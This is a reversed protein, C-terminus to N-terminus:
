KGVGAVTSLASSVVTRMTATLTASRTMEKVLQIENALRTRDWMETGTKEAMELASKTFERNTIVISRQCSYVATATYAEQVANTGVKLGEGYLKAQIVTRTGYRDTVIVDAGFDGTRCTVYATNGMARFLKAIYKEFARGDLKDVYAMDLTSHRPMLARLKILLYVIACLAGLTLTFIPRQPIIAALVYLVAFWIAARELKRQHKRTLLTLKPSKPRRPRKTAM